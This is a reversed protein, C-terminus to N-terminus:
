IQTELLARSAADLRGYDPIEYHNGDADRILVHGDAVLRIDRRGSSIELTRPGRDTDVAWAPVGHRESIDHIRTIAPLIYTRRLETELADRSERPLDAMNEILGIEERHEDRLLIWRDRHSVPFCRKATVRRPAGGGRDAIVLDEYDDIWLRLSVADLMTLEETAASKSDTADNM